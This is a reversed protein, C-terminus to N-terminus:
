CSSYALLAARRLAPPRARLFTWARARGGRASPRRRATARIAVFCRDPETGRRPALATEEDVRLAAAKKAYGEYLLAALARPDGGWASGTTIVVEPKEGRELAPKSTARTVDRAEKLGPAAGFTGFPWNRRQALNLTLAMLGRAWGLQLGTRAATKIVSGLSLFEKQAWLTGEYLAAASMRKPEFCVNPSVYKSWDWETIRGEQELRRFVPTGPYPVLVSFCALNAGGGRIVNLTREFVTADDGDLGFVFAAVCAIGRGVINRIAKVYTEEPDGAGPVKRVM